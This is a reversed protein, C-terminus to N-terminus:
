KSELTGPTQGYFNDKVRPVGATSNTESTAATAATCRGRADSVTLNLPHSYDRGMVSPPSAPTPTLAAHLGLSSAPSERRLVERVRPRGAVLQTRGRHPDLRHM